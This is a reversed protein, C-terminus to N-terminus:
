ERRAKKANLLHRGLWISWIPVGIVTAIVGIGITTIFPYNHLALRPDTLAGLGSLLFVGVPIMLIGAGTAVGLRTLGRPLYGSRGIVSISGIWVGIFVYGAAAIPYWVSSGILGVVYLESAVGVGALGAVGAMAALRSLRPSTLRLAAAVPVLLLFQVGGLADNIAGLRSTQAGAAVAQPAELLYFALLVATAVIGVIGSAIALQGTL